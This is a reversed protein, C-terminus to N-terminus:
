MVLSVYGGDQHYRGTFIPSKGMGVNTKGPPHVTGNGGEM